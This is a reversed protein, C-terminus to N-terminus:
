TNRGTGPLEGAHGVRDDHPEGPGGTGGAAGPVAADPSRARGNSGSAVTPWRTCAAPTGSVSAPPRRSSPPGAGTVARARGPLVISTVRPGGAAAPPPRRSGGPRRVRCGPGGCAAARARRPTTSRRRPGRARPGPPRPPGTQEGLVAAQEHPPREPGAGQHAAATGVVLEGVDERPESGRQRRQGAAGRAAAAQRRHGLLLDGVPQLRAGPAGVVVEGPAVGAAPDVPVAGM